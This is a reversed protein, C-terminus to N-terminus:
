KKAKFETAYLSQSYEPSVGVLGNEDPENTPNVTEVVPAPTGEGDDTGGDSDKVEEAKVDDAPPAPTDNAAPTQTTEDKAEDKVPASPASPTDKKTTGAM